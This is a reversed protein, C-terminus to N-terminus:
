SHCQRSTWLTSCPFISELIIKTDSYATNGSSPMEVQVSSSIESRGASNELYVAFQYIYNAELGELQLAEKRLPLTVLRPDPSNSLPHEPLSPISATSTVYPEVSNHIFEVPGQRQYMVTYSSIIGNWLSPSTPLWSLTVSTKSNIVATVNGIM